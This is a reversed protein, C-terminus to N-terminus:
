GNPNGEYLSLDLNNHHYDKEVLWVTTVVGRVYDIVLCVDWRSDYPARFAVKVIDGDDVYYEFPYANRIPWRLNISSARVKYRTHKSLRTRDIFTPVLNAINYPDYVSIHYRVM